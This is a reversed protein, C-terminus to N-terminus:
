RIVTMKRAASWGQGTLRVTYLGSALNLRDTDIPVSQPGAGLRGERVVAASRGLIDHVTIRVPGPEPLTFEFRCFGNLPNPYLRVLRPGAPAIREEKVASVTSRNWWFHLLGSRDGVILDPLGDRNLDAMAPHVCSDVQLGAFASADKRWEPVTGTGVNEYYSLTGNEEGFLLDVKKDGSLDGFAAGHYKLDGIGKLWGRNERWQEDPTNLREYFTYEENKQLFLDSDGDGDIDVLLPAYFSSDSSQFQAFVTSDPRFVVTGDGSDRRYYRVIPPGENDRFDVTCAGTLIDEDGDGDGDTFAFTLGIVNTPLWGHGLEIGHGLPDPLTWGAKDISDNPDYGGDRFPLSCFRADRFYQWVFDILVDGSVILDPGAAGERHHFVPIADREFSVPGWYETSDPDGNILRTLRRDWQNIVLDPPQDAGSRIWQYCTAARDASLTSWLTNYEFLGTAAYLGEFRDAEFVDLGLFTGPDAMIPKITSLRVPDGGSRPLFRTTCTWDFENQGNLLDQGVSKREFEPYVGNQNIFLYSTSWWCSDALVDLDGDEDVDCFSFNFYYPLTDGPFFLSPNSWSPNEVTGMNSFYFSSDTVCEFRGDSNWDVFEFSKPHFEPHEDAWSSNFFGIEPLPMEKRAWRHGLGPLSEYYELQGAQNVFVDERGDGNWDLLQFAFANETFELGSPNVVHIDEEWKWEGATALGALLVLAPFGKFRM